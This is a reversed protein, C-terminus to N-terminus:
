WWYIGGNMDRQRKANRSSTLRTSAAVTVNFSQVPTIFVANYGNIQNNAYTRTNARLLIFRHAARVAFRVAVLTSRAASLNFTPRVALAFTRKVM